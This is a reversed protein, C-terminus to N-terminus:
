ACNQRNCLHTRPKLRWPVNKPYDHSLKRMIHDSSFLFGKGLLKLQINLHIKYFVDLLKISVHHSEWSEFLRELSIHYHM